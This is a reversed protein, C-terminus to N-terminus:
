QASTTQLNFLFPQNVSLETNESTEPKIAITLRVNGKIEVNEMEGIFHGEGLTGLDYQGYKGTLRIELAGDPKFYRTDTVGDSEDFTFCHLKAGEFYIFAKLNTIGEIKLLESLDLGIEMERMVCEITVPTAIGAAIQTPEEGAYTPSDSVLKVDEETSYAKVTYSGAELELIGLGKLEAYSDFTKNYSNNGTIEVKFTDVDVVAARTVITEPNSNVSVDFTMYGTQKEGAVEDSQCATFAIVSFLSIGIYYIIKKM